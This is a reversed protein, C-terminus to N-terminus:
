AGTSAACFLAPTVTARSSARSAARTLKLGGRPDRRDDPRRAAVLRSCALEGSDPDVDWSEQEKDIAWSLIAEEVQARREAPVAQLERALAAAALAGVRHIKADAQCATLLRSVQSPDSRAREGLARHRARGVDSVLLEDLARLHPLWNAWNSAVDIGDLLEKRAEANILVERFKTLDVLDPFLGLDTDLEDLSRRQQTYYDADLISSVTVDVVHYFVRAQEEM